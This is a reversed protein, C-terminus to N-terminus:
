LEVPSGNSTTASHENSLPAYHLVRTHKRILIKAKSYVYLAKKKKQCFKRCNVLGKTQGRFQLINTMFITNQPHSHGNNRHLVKTNDM